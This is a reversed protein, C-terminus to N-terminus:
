SRDSFSRRSLFRSARKSLWPSSNFLGRVEEVALTLAATRVFALVLLPLSCMLMGAAGDGLLVGSYGLEFGGALGVALPNRVEFGLKFVLECFAVGEEEREPGADRGDATLIPLVLVRENIVMERGEVDDVVGGHKGGETFVEEVGDLVDLACDDTELGADAGDFAFDPGFVM